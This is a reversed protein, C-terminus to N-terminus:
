KGLDTNFFHPPELDNEYILTLAKTVDEGRKSKLPQIALKKSFADQVFLLFRIGKNTHKLGQVDALDAQHMENMGYVIIQDKKIKTSSTRFTTYTDQNLLWDQVKKLTVGKIGQKQAAQYLQQISGFGAENKLDHYLEYLQKDM